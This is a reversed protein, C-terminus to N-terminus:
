DLAGSRRVIPAYDKAGKRRNCHPPVDHHAPALNAPDYQAGGRSIPVRHDVADAGPQGCIHCVTSAALIRARLQRWRRTSGNRKQTM